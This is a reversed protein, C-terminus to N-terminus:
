SLDRLHHRRVLQKYRTGNSGICETIKPVNNGGAMTFTDSYRQIYVINDYRTTIDISLESTLVPVHMDRIKRIDLGPPIPHPETQKKKFAPNGKIAYAALKFCAESLREMDRVRSSDTSGTKLSDIMDAAAHPRAAPPDSKSSSPPPESDNNRKLALLQLLIHFPHEECIRRILAWLTKQSLSSDLDRHSLRATLQPVLFVFKHSPVRAIANNIKKGYQDRGFNAYWLLCLRISSETDSYDSSCLTRSYMEIAQTLFEDRAAYHGDAQTSDEKLLARAAKLRKGHEEKTRPVQESDYLNKLQGIEHRKREMYVELRTLEPSDIVSQYQRHAFLAFKEYVKAQQRNMRQTKNM